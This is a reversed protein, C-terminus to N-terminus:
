RIRFPIQAASRRSDAAADLTEFAQGIQNGSPDELAPLVSLVYIGSRWPDRPVFTWATEGKEVRTEGAIPEDARVISFARQLLARDLPAPFSVTLADRSAAAPATIRWTAASLAKENAPGVRYDKRFDAALPQGSADPWDRSVVITMTSGRELPRGMGRNPLIGRKVRGPDFLITFRTRDGNWLDTDLPLLAGEIENGAGDLIRIYDQGNRTGMPGSFEVYMRLLNEPVTSGGPYVEAVRVPAGRPAAPTSVTRSVPRVSRLPGGPAAAPDFVVLYERGPEFPLVPTFRLKGGAVAYSGAVPDAAPKGATAVSVKLIATWADRSLGARDLARLDGRSLGSVVVAPRRPDSLDLAVEPASVAGCAALAVCLATSL